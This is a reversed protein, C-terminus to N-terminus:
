LLVPRDPSPPDPGTSVPIRCRAAVCGARRPAPGAGCAPGTGIQARWASVNNNISGFTMGHWTEYMYVQADPNSSTALNFYNLAAGNSDWWRIQEDLPIGETIVLVDYRGTALATRANMGEAGAGNRWNYGLPAGNILQYDAQGDGGQSNILSNMMAPLRPSVLSHGVFFLNSDISSPM